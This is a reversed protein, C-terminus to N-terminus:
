GGFEDGEDSPLEHGAAPVGRRLHDRFRDFSRDPDDIGGSAQFCGPSGVFHVRTSSCFGSAM